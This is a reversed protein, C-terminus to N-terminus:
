KTIMEVYEMVGDLFRKSRRLYAEDVVEGKKNLFEGVKSVHLGQPAIILGVKTLIPQLHEFLRVGGLIGASTTCVGVVKKNYEKYAMDFLLKFEGPYGHNYEPVVFIFGDSKAAIDRWPQAEKSAKWNAITVPNKVFKRVDILQTKVGDYQKLQKVLFKAVKDSNRSKRATGLIIPIFM